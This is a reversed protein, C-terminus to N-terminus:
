ILYSVEKKVSVNGRSMIRVPTIPPTITMMATAMTIIRQWLLSFFGSPLSCAKDAHAIEYSYHM